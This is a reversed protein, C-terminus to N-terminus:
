MQMVVFPLLAVLLLVCSLCIEFEADVASKQLLVLGVCCCLIHRERWIQFGELGGGRRDEREEGTAVMVCVCECVCAWVCAWSCLFLEANINITSLIAGISGWELGQIKEKVWSTGKKKKKKGKERM